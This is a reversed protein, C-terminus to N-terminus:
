FLGGIILSLGFCVGGQLGSALSSHFVGEATGLLYGGDVWTATMTLTAVWLPLDRGALILGAVPGGKVKRAACAGVVLFIAYMVGVAALGGWDLSDFQLM